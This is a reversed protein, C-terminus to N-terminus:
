ETDGHYAGKDDNHASLWILLVSIDAPSVGSIRGAQGINEPRVRNLKERAELRLGAIGAYDIDKPLLRKELRRMEAIDQLQRKIYGEYKLSTEVSEFIEAPYDPRNPDVPTLDRYTIQPRRLLESMRVGTSVPSTGRSVLIENLAETPSLVTKEARKLEEAKRSQKLQFKEWRRDSILGLERGIPTLREDANDQRLVLRYESRSTMMRYPDTVGKTILDDILTGIYSSARDLVLPARGLIKLAANAGAIFGQAAAEEYGSSGNFQGAGYLGSFDRFELTAGLQLPDCCDYEIAYASRMIQVNELGKITRYFAIQVDEPLSSSMGQLYMEETEAGCPEIFLQHRPKESFRVIKDEISPCYRPGVGEIMGGYLPSRHINKLIVEKTCDNTWSVHCVAKNEPPTETDFSFPTVPEDGRQEELDTFDISSRLVRAPTGTKFRRLEIGLRSLAGALETAPFMGDPGGAYSVDGVFIKGGLFTGTALVVAKCTYQAGLRTTLRWADNERFLDVVEAQKMELNPCLELKHKMVRAYQNRDIQARLSHVAPGKGLNLMRSQLTCADATKGMEGGLADIERVLHGKATGGISPNCPCNGVADMNITFVATHCGLRASALAAEIGAHGAGIVAVDFNGAEYNM